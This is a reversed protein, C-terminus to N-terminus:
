GSIACGPDEERGEEKATIDCGLEKETPKKIARRIKEEAEPTVNKLNHAAAGHDLVQSILDEESSSECAFDCDWGMDSCSFCYSGM